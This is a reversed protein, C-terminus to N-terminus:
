GAFGSRRSRSDVSGPEPAATAPGIVAQFSSSTVASFAISGSTVGFTAPWVTGSVSFPTGSTSPMATNLGYTLAFPAVEGISSPNTLDQFGIEAEINDVFLQFSDTFQGTPLGNVTVFIGTPALILFGGAVSTITGTDTALTVQFASNSFPTNTVGQVQVGSGQGFLTFTIPGAVALTGCGLISLAFATFAIYWKM